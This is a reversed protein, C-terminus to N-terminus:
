VHTLLGLVYTLLDRVCTLLGRVYTLLGDVCTLLGRVCILLGHVSVVCTVKCLIYNPKLILQGSKARYVRLLTSILLTKTIIQIRCMNKLMKSLAKQFDM